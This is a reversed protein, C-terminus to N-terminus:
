CRMVKMKNGFYSLLHHCFLITFRFGLDPLRSVGFSCRGHCAVSINATETLSITFCLWVVDEVEM